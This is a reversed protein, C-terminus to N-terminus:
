RDGTAAPSTRGNRVAHSMGRWCKGICAFTIRGYGHRISRLQNPPRGARYTMRRAFRCNPQCEKGAVTQGPTFGVIAAAIRDGGHFEILRM